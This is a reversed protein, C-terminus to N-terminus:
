RAAPETEIVSVATETPIIRAPSFGAAELLVQYEGETRECGGNMVLMTLDSALLSRMAPSPEVKAPLVREIVLLKSSQPMVRRCNRLIAIARADDWDHIVRSLIYANGGEPIGTRLDGDLIECRHALGAGAIHEHAREAVHPLEFLVGKMGPHASLLAVLLSGVGGGLDVVRQFASFPYAALVADIHVGALNAMAADFLVAYEPHEARYEWAGKGFVHDFATAGTRVTEMLEGWARYTEGGLQHIVLDRLSGARNTQLPTSLATMAFRRSGEEAFVGASVLLRMVRELSSAHMGTAEALEIGSRPGGRLLDALGLRAAVYLARSVHFGTTLHMVFATPSGYTAGLDRGDMESRM